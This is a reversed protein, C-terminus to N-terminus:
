DSSGAAGALPAFPRSLARPCLAWAGARPEGQRGDAAPRREAICRTGTPNAAHLSEEDCPRVRLRRLPAAFKPSSRLKVSELARCSSASKAHNMGDARFVRPTDTCCIAASNQCYGIWSLKAASSALASPSDSSSAARLSAAHPGLRIVSVSRRWRSTSTPLRSALGSTAMRSTAEATAPTVPSRDLKMMM